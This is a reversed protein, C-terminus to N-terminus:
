SLSVLIVRLHLHYMQATSTGSILLPLLMIRLFNLIWWYRLKSHKFMNFSYPWERIWLNRNSNQLFNKTKSSSQDVGGTTHLWRCLWITNKEELEFMESTYIPHVSSSVVCKPTAHRFRDPDEWQYCWWGRSEAQPQLPVRYISWSVAVWFLLNWNSYSVVTVWGISPQVLTTSFLILSWGKM